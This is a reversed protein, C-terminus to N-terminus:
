ARETGLLREIDVHDIQEPQLFAEAYRLYVGSRLFLALLEPDIHGNDRMLSMIRLSESLTKAPKYPRDVATLAEFIDAIAMIREPISMQAGKLRRPYGTGDMKEHHNGAWDPVRKLERPFPLKELMIITQVIHDNIKFREEPTLTGKRICLNYVEGLNYENEPIEMDFGHANDGFPHRGELRPIIHDPRDALLPESIPLKPMPERQKRRLEEFSLGLRDDLHRVWSRQAIQHVRAIDDDSMYEGGLNCAAIFSFDDELQRIRENRQAELDAQHQGGEALAKWYDIQADRILVEFRTRIEHIRNFITELKTAKDVVYEPTTVKGCDHLWSALYLTNWDNDSLHFDAFPGVDADVAAATLMKALEPVRQCHGHTYPSKADIAGAIVQIFSELLDKQAKLLRRVDIAVAADSSLAEIYTVLEPAFGTVNGSEGRANVLQLLGITDGKQDRLPLTLASQARYGDKEFRARTLSYDWREDSAIDDICVIDSADHVHRELTYRPTDTSHLEVPDFSGSRESNAVYRIATRTNSVIAADLRSEDESLLLIAGGDARAVKCAEDLIMELLHAYDKEASLAHSISLFQAISSRMVGMTSALDDVERIRSHVAIPTDLRFARIQAASHALSRLSSSIHRSVLVTGVLVLALLALSLLLSQDRVHAVGALLEDYPILMALYIGEGQRSPLESISAMWERGGSRLTDRGTPDDQRLREALETYLPDDLDSLSSLEMRDNGATRLGATVVVPDSLGIIAGSATITAVRTSPTVRQETLGAAFDRLSLDAGVVGGGGALRRAFTIGVERTTFFVYFDSSIPKPTEIAQAYWARERPDYGRYQPSTQALVSLDDALFLFREDIGTTDETREISQVVWRTKPPAGLAQATAWRENLSRVLFFEGNEYGVFLSEVNPMQRLAETMFPLADLRAELSQTEGSLARSSIDVLRQAPVYLGAISMGVQRGIRDTLEDAALLTLARNQTFNFGILAAGFLTLLTAFITALTVHLPYLRKHSGSTSPSTAPAHAVATSM